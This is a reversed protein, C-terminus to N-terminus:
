INWLQQLNLQTGDCMDPSLNFTYLIPEKAFEERALYIAVDHKFGSLLPHYTTIYNGGLLDPM